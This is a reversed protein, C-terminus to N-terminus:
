AGSDPKPMPIPPPTVPRSRKLWYILISAYVATLMLRSNRGWDFGHDMQWAIPFIAAWAWIGIMVKAASRFGVFTLGSCVITSVAIFGYKADRLVLAQYAAYSSSM